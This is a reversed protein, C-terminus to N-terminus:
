VSGRHLTCSGPSLQKSDEKYCEQIKFKGRKHGKEWNKTSM